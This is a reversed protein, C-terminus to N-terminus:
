GEPVDAAIQGSTLDTMAHVLIPALLSGTGLYMAAMIAGIVGARIVGGRGQYSHGLGFLASSVLVAGAAGTFPTLCAMLYGRFLIEECVGATVSLARFNALEAGPGPLFWRVPALQRQVSARARTGLAARYQVLLLALVAVVIGITWALSAGTPLTLGVRSPPWGGWAVLAIAVAVLMWQQAITLRYERVRRGPQGALIAARVRPLRLQNEYAPWALAFVAVFSWQIWANMDFGEKGV